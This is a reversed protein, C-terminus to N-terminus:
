ANGLMTLRLQAPLGHKQEEFLNKNQQVTKRETLRRGIDKRDRKRKNEEEESRAQNM